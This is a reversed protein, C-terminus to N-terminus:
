LARAFMVFMESEIACDIFLSAINRPKHAQCKKPHLSSIESQVELQLVEPENQRSKKLKTKAQVSRAEGQYKFLLFAQGWLM